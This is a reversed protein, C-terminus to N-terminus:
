LVPRRHLTETTQHLLPNDQLRLVSRSPSAHRSVLPKISSTLAIHRSNLPSTALSTPTKICKNTSASDTSYLLISFPQNTSRNHEHLVSTDTCTPRALQFFVLRLLTNIVHTRLNSIYLRTVLSLNPHHSTTTHISGLAFSFTRVPMPCFSLLVFLILFNSPHRFHPPM